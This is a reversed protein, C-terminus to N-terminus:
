FRVGVEVKNNSVKLSVDDSIVSSLFFNILRNAVALGIMNSANNGFRRKRDRLDDYEEALENNNWDWEDEGTYSNEEIYERRQELIESNTTDPYLMRAQEKVWENYEDSSNFNEMANLYEVGRRNVNAGANLSAFNISSENVNGEYWRFGFYSGWIAAEAAFFYVAKKKEGRLLEGTGPLVLSAFTAQGPSISILITLLFM